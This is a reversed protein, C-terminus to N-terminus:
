GKLEEEFARHAEPFRNKAKGYVMGMAYGGYGLRFKIMTNRLDRLKRLEKEGEETGSLKRTKRELYPSHGHRKLVGERYEQCFAEYTSPYKAKLRQLSMDSRGRWGVKGEEVILKRLVEIEQAPDPEHWAYKERMSAAHPSELM